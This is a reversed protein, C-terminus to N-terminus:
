PESRPTANPARSSAAVLGERVGDDIANLKEPRNLVLTAVPGDQTLLVREEVM